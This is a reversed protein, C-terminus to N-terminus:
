RIIDIKTLTSLFSSPSMMVTVKEISIASRIAVADLVALAIATEASPWSNTNTLIAGPFVDFM